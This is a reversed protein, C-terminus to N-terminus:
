SGRHMESDKEGLREARKESDGGDRSRRGTGSRLSGVVAPEDGHFAVVESQVALSDITKM